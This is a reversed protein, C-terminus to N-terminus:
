AARMFEKHLEKAKAVYAAHAEEATKYTGIHIRKNNCRIYARYRNKRKLFIVGKLQSKSNKMVKRHMSSQSYTALRLNSIKNNTKDGDIHDIVKTPWEGHEFFWVLRHCFIHKKFIGVYIYGNAKKCGAISGISIANFSTKRYFCGNEKDYELHEEIEQKTFPYSKPKNM